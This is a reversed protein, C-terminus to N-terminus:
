QDITQFHINDHGEKDVPTVSNQKAKNPFISQTIASNIIGTLPETLQDAASKVLKLPILNCGM